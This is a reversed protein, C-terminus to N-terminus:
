EIQRRRAVALVVILLLGAVIAGVLFLSTEARLPEGAPLRNLPVQTDPAREEPAPAEEPLGSEEQPTDGEEVPPPDETQPQPSAPEAVETEETEPAVPDEGQTELPSLPSAEPQWLQALARQELLYWGTLALILCLILLLRQLGLGNLAFLRMHTHIRHVGSLKEFSFVALLNYM